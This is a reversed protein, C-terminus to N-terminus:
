GGNPRTLKPADNVNMKGQGILLAIELIKKSNELLYGLAAECCLGRQVDADTPERFEDHEIDYIKKM